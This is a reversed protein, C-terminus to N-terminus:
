IFSSFDYTNYVSPHDQFLYVLYILNDKDRYELLFTM